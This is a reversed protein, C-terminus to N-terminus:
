ICSKCCRIQSKKFRFLFFDSPGTLHLEDSERDFFSSFVLAFFVVGECYCCFYAGNVGLM